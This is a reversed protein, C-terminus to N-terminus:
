GSAEYLGGSSDGPGLFRYGMKVLKRNEYYPKFKMGVFANQRIHKELVSAARCVAGNSKSYSLVNGGMQNGVSSSVDLSTEFVGNKNANAGKNQGNGLLNMIKEKKNGSFVSVTFCVVAAVIMRFFQKLGRMVTRRKEQRDLTQPQASGVAALYYLEIRQSSLFLVLFNIIRKISIRTRRATDGGM